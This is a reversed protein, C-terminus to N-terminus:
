PFKQFDLFKQCWDKSFSICHTVQDFVDKVLKHFEDEDEVIITAMTWKLYKWVQEIPNFHPSGSPLFV